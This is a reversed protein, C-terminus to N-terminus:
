LNLKLLRYNADPLEELSLLEKEKEIVDLGEWYNRETVENGDKGILFIRWQPKVHGTTEDIPSPECFLNIGEDMSLDVQYEFSLIRLYGLMKRDEREAARAGQVSQLTNSGEEQIRIPTLLRDLARRDGNQAAHILARTDVFQGHIEPTSGIFFHEIPALDARTFVRQEKKEIPDENM